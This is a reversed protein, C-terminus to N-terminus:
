AGTFSPARKARFAAVGERADRSSAARAQAAAELALQEELDNALTARLQRKVLAYSLTPGAALGKVLEWVAEAFGEAPLVREVLGIAKAEEAGLRANGLALDMTRGVGILRPLHYSCGADMVLGIATFGLAFLAASSAVRLDCAAALSLGAGAAVGNVGAVVPKDLDVIARVVPHYALELLAGIDEDVPTAALDAGACFGRGEGTLLVARVAPDAAEGTLAASLEELTRPTLANLVEPRDIVIRLAPGERELRLDEYAM